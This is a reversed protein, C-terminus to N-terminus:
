LIHTCLKISRDCMKVDISKGVKDQKELHDPLGVKLKGPYKSNHQMEVVM